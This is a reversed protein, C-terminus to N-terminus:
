ECGTSRRPLGSALAVEQEHGQYPSTQYAAMGGGVTVLALTEGISCETRFSARRSRCCM